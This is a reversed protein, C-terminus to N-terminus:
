KRKKEIEILQLLENYYKNRFETVDTETFLFQGELGKKRDKETTKPLNKFLFEGYKLVYVGCDYGNRQQPYNFQNNELKPLFKFLNVDTPQPQILQFEYQDFPYFQENYDYDITYGGNSSCSVIKGTKWARKNREKFKIKNAFKTSNKNKWEFSLYSILVKYLTSSNHMRLGDMHIFCAENENNSLNSAASTLTEENLEIKWQNIKSIIVLSWHLDQNYPILLFDYQFIDVNKTWKKVDNYGLENQGNGTRMLKELFFTDFIFIKGRKNKPLSEFMMKFKVNILVDNFYKGRTTPHYFIDLTQQTISSNHISLLELVPQPLGGNEYMLSLDKKIISKIDKVRVQSKEIFGRLHSNGINENWNFLKVKNKIDSPIDM